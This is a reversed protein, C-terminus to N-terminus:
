PWRGRAGLPAPSPWPMLPRTPRQGGRRTRAASSPHGASPSTPPTAGDSRAVRAAPGHALASSPAVEVVATGVVTASAVVSSGLLSRQLLAASGHSHAVRGVQTQITVAVPPPKQTIFKSYSPPTSQWEQPSWSLHEALTPQLLNVCAQSQAEDVSTQRQSTVALAQTSGGRPEM